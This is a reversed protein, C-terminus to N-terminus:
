RSLRYVDREKLDPRRKAVSPKKQSESMLGSLVIPTVDQGRM